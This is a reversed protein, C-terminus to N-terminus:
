VLTDVAWRSATSTEAALSTGLRRQRWSRPTLREARRKRQQHLV